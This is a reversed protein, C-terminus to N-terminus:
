NNKKLQINKYEKPYHKKACKPCITHSFDVGSHKHLYGEIQEYYGEDNRINKCFSCIPLIGRLTNIEKLSKELKEILAEKVLEEEKRDSIDTAIELRVIRSDTWIIARDVIHFWKGTATNQFEWKHADGPRGDANLLYKNTCFDCPGTQGKQINQWCIQGSIDGLLKKGYNNLFLIEYTNMDAVYVLAELSNMVIKFRDLAENTMLINKKQERDYRYQIFFGLVSLIVSVIILLIQILKYRSFDRKIKQQLLTEVNDIQDVFNKFLRDYQQDIESGIGASEFSDYRKITIDKFEKIDKIVLAVEKRLTLDSLPIFTGEANQGGELMVRAYWSAQDIHEIIEEINEYRDGSIIEEFWLHATAAEFKVEMTANVLPSYKNIMQNSSYFSYAMAAIIILAVTGIFLYRGLGDHLTIKDKM